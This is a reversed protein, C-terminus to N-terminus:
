MYLGPAAQGLVLQVARGGGALVVETLGKELESFRHTLVYSSAPLQPVAYVPDSRAVLQKKKCDM